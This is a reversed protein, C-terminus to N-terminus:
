FFKIESVLGKGVQETIRQLIIQKQFLLETRWTMSQVRVYLIGDKVREPHSIKGINEGVLQVWEDLIRQEKIQLDMGTQRLLQDLGSSIHQTRDRAM